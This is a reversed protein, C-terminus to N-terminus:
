ILLTLAGVRTSDPCQPLRVGCRSPHPLEASVSM